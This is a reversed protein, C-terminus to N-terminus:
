SHWESCVRSQMAANKAPIVNLEGYHSDESDESHHESEALAEIGILTIWLCANTALVQTFLFRAFHSISM